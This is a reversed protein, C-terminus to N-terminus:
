RGAAGPQFVGQSQGSLKKTKMLRAWKWRVNWVDDNASYDQRRACLWAYTQDLVADPPSKPSQPSLLGGLGGFPPTGERLCILHGGRRPYPPSGLRLARAPRRLRSNPPPCRGGLGGFPPTTARICTLHGGRPLYPPRELRLACGVGTKNLV